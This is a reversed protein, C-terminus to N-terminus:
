TEFLRTANGSPPPSCGCGALWNVTVRVGTANPLGQTADLLEAVAYSRRAGDVLTPAAVDVQTCIELPSGAAPERYVDVENARSIRDQRLTDHYDAWVYLFTSSDLRWIGAGLGRSDNTAEAQFPVALLLAQSSHCTAFGGGDAPPPVTVPGSPARACGAALLALLLAVRRM